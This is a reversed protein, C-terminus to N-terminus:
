KKDQGAPRGAKADEGAPKPEAAPAAAPAKDEQPLVPKFELKQRNVAELVDKTVDASADFSIAADSSVIVAYGKEARFANLVRQIADYLMNAVNQQETQMRQQAAMYAQQLDKQLDKNEADGELRHQIDTLKAQMESQLGELFKMGAKGPESDRMVRALDVVAVAPRSAPAKSENCACLACALLLALSVSLRIRM